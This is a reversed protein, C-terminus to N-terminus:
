KPIALLMQYNHTIAIEYINGLEGDRYGIIYDGILDEPINESSVHEIEDFLEVLEMDAWSSADFRICVFVNCSKPIYGIDVSGKTKYDVIEKIHKYQPKPTEEDVPSASVENQQEEPKLNIEKDWYEQNTLFTISKIGGALPQEEIQKQLEEIKDDASQLALDYRKLRKLLEKNEKKLMNNLAEVEQLKQVLTKIITKKM